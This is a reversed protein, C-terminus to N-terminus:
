CSIITRVCFAIKPVIVRSRFFRLILSALAIVLLSSWRQRGMSGCGSPRDPEDLAGDGDVDGYGRFWTGPEHPRERGAEDNAEVRPRDTVRAFIMARVLRRPVPLGDDGAAERSPPSDSAEPSVFTRGEDGSLAIDRESPSPPSPADSGGVVVSNRAFSRPIRIGSSAATSCSTFVSM